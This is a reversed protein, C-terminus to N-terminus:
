TTWFDGFPKWDWISWARFQGNRSESTRHRWSRHRLSSKCLWLFKLIEADNESFPIFRFIGLIGRFEERILIRHFLCGKKFINMGWNNRSFNKRLFKSNKLSKKAYKLEYTKIVALQYWNRKGIGYLQCWLIM